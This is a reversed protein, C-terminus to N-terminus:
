HAQMILRVLLSFNHIQSQKRKFINSSLVLSMDLIIAGTDFLDIVQQPRVEECDEEHNYQM